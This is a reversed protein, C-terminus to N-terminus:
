SESFSPSLPQHTTQSVFPLQLPNAHPRFSLLLNYPTPTHDSFSFFGTLPQHTTQPDHSTTLSQHTTQIFSPLFNDPPQHTTQFLFSPQLPNTHPKFSLPLNYLTPTHDSFWPFSLVLWFCSLPNATNGVLLPGASFVVISKCHRGCASFWGPARWHIQMKEWLCLIQRSYSLPNCTFTCNAYPQRVTLMRTAYPPRVTLTRNAYPSRVTPTRHACSTLIHSVKIKTSHITSYPKTFVTASHSQTLSSEMTDAMINNQLRMEKAWTRISCIYESILICQTPIAQTKKTFYLM